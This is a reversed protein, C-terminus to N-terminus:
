EAARTNGRGAEHCSRIGIRHSAFRLRRPRKAEGPNKGYLESVTPAEFLVRVPLECNLLQKVRAMVQTALLSHGGLEFFNDHRGVQELKMLDTWIKALVQETNNAPSAGVASIPQAPAPLRDRDIKGNPTLPLLDLMVFASPVMYDPLLQRLEERLERVAPPPEGKVTVLYAVLARDRAGDQVVVVADRIGPLLLLIAEIEGLEIRHGRVKVQRDARGAFEM